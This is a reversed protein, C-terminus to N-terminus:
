KVQGGMAFKHSGTNKVDKVLAKFIDMHLVMEKKCKVIVNNKKETVQNQM